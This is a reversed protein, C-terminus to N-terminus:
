VITQYPILKYRGRNELVNEGSTHPADPRFRQKTKRDQLIERLLAKAEYKAAKLVFIIQYPGVFCNSISM